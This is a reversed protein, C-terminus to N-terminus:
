EGTRARRLAEDLPMPAAAALLEARGFWRSGRVALLAAAVLLALGGLKRLSEVSVWEAPGLGLRSLVVGGGVALLAGLALPWRPWTARSGPRGWAFLAVAGGCLAAALFPALLSHINM